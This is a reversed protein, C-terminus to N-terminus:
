ELENPLSLSHRQLWRRFRDTVLPGRETWSIPWGMMGELFSPHVMPPDDVSLRLAETTKSGRYDPSGAYRKSAAGKRLSKTPTPLCLSDSEATARESNGLEWVCGAHTMGWTPLDGWFRTWDALPCCRPTRSFSLVLGCFRLSERLREGFDRVSAPGRVSGRGPWRYMRVPSAPPLSTWLDVGRNPISPECTTGSLSGNSAATPKAPPSSPVDFRSSRSRRSRLGALYGLLSFDGGLEPSCHWSM